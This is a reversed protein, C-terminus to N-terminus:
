NNIMEMIEKELGYVLPEFKKIRQMAEASKSGYRERICALREKLPVVRSGIVRKDAYYVLKEEIFVLEQIRELVHKKVIDAVGYYSKERLKRWGIEGHGGQKLTEIKDIDHLLAGAKVLALNVKVGNGMIEKALEVSLDKVAESHRVVNEPVSNEELLEHCKKETPIVGVLERKFAEFDSQSYLVLKVVELSKTKEEFARIEGLMARAGDKIGLGAIGCGLAPFAISKCELEEAKELANRTAKRVSEQTARFNGYHPQAAAHFVYKASLRGARTVVISGLEVPAHELAEKEVERGGARKLAGAVGGGMELSTGAANVLVDAKVEAINGKL